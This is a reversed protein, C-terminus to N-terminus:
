CITLLMKSLSIVAEAVTAHVITTITFSFHVVHDEPLNIDKQLIKVDGSAEETTALLAIDKFNRKMVEYRYARGHREGATYFHSPDILIACQVVNTEMYRLIADASTGHAIILDRKDLSLTERMYQMWLSEYRKTNFDYVNPMDGTSMDPLERILLPVFNDNRYGLDPLFLIDKDNLCKQGTSTMRYKYEIVKKMVDLRESDSVNLRQYRQTEDLFNEYSGGGQIVQKLRKIKLLREKDAGDNRAWLVVNNSGTGERILSATNVYYFTLTPNLLVM